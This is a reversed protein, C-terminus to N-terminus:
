FSHASPARVLVVVVVVRRSSRVVFRVSVVFFFVCVSRSGIYKMVMADCYWAGKDRLLVCVCVHGCVKMANYLVDNWNEGSVVIFVTLLANALNDFNARAPPDFVPRGFKSAYM